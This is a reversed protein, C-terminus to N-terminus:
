KLITASTKILLLVLIAVIQIFKQAYPHNIYPDIYNTTFYSHAEKCARFCSWMMGRPSSYWELWTCVLEVCEMQKPMKSKHEKIFDLSLMWYRVNSFLKVASKERNLKDHDIWKILSFYFVEESSVWLNRRSIIANLLNEDLKLFDEEKSIRDFNVGAFWIAQQYLEIPGYQNSIMAFNLCNKIDLQEATFFNCQTILSQIQFFTAGRLIDEVTESQLEIQGTYVFTLIAKLVKGSVEHIKVQTSTPSDGFMAMFYDSAASLVNKHSYFKVNDSSIICIDSFQGKETFTLLKECLKMTYSNPQNISISSEQKQM